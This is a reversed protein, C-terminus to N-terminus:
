KWGVTISSAGATIRVDIKKTAAAYNKSQYTHNDTTTFDTLNKSSAGGEITLKAGLAVPLTLSVQSAGTNIAIASQDTTQGIILNINSAGSNITVGSTTVSSLDITAKMAGGNVTLNTPLGDMLSLDLTNRMTGFWWRANQLTNITVNQTTGDLKSLTSIDAFSSTFHGSVLQSAGGRITAEAAGTELRINATTASAEKPVVIDRSVNTARTWGHGSWGIGLVVGIIAIIVFAGIVNGWVSRRVLISVGAVVILVPWFRFVDFGITWSWGAVNALWSFGLLIIMLGVFFRWISFGGRHYHHHHIEKIVPEPSAAAKKEQNTHEDM